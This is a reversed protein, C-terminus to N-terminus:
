PYLLSYGRMETRVVGKGERGGLSCVGRACLGALRQPSVQGSGRNWMLFEALPWSFACLFFDFAAPLSM